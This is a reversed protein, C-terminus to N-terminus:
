SKEQRIESLSNAINSLFGYSNVNEGYRLRSNYNGNAFGWHRYNWTLKIILLLSILLYQAIYHLQFLM